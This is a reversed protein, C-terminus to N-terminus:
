NGVLEIDVYFQLSFMSCSNPLFSFQNMISSFPSISVVRSPEKRRLKKCRSRYRGHRQHGFVKTTYFDNRSRLEELMGKIEIKDGRIRIMHRGQIDNPNTCGIVLVM